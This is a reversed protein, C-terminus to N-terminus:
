TSLANGKALLTVSFQGVQILPLSLIIEHGIEVFSDNPWYHLLATATFAYLFLLSRIFTKFYIIRTNKKKELLYLVCTATANQTSNKQLTKAKANM